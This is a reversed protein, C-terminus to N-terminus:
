ALGFLNSFFLKVHDFVRPFFGAEPVDELAVLPQTSIVKDKLTVQVEGYAQGKEIPAKLPQEVAVSAKLNNLAGVPVTVYLPQTVGLNVEAKKGFWIPLTKLMKNSDYLKNTQYFRFGFNLLAMVDKARQAASSSGMVIAILRMDQREASAVLCYGADDTYGTKLGDVSPDRWLLLNRNPQNIDNYVMSKKKYWQYDKPYHQIIARSLISLDYPTTYNGTDSLGSSDVFHTNGMGLHQAAQNMLGVFADESGAVHESLAVCADNGSAIVIGEVLSKVPVHTGVQIFMRSGGTRWAKESVLVQDDLKIRGSSLMGSAVYMTMLKTLSAPPMEENANHQAIIYGSDADLLIYGRADIEPPDPVVMPKAKSIAPRTAIAAGQVPVQSSLDIPAAPLNTTTHVPESEVETAPAPESASASEPEEVAFAAMSFLCGLLVSIWFKSQMFCNKM